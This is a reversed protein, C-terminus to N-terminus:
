YQNEAHENQLVGLQQQKPEFDVIKFEPAIDGDNIQDINNIKQQVALCADEEITGAAFVIKQLSKSKGGARHVRGLAQKLDVARYTPCILAVRPHKGNLDHLSIGVGGAQINCIIVREEDKQFADIFGQRDEEKQGGVVLCETKLKEALAKVSDTFNLFIAVSKGEDVADKTMEALLPIKVLEVRQRARLQIVLHSAPDKAEKMSLKHLEEQMEAYIKNIESTEDGMDYIDAMIMTDPFADGLDKIRVRNGRRPFIEKNLAILHKKGGSFEMGMGGKRVGFRYAWQYFSSGGEHLGLLLGLGYLQLPNHAATASIALAPIEQIKCGIPLKSNQSTKNACRHIEDFIVISNEPLTWQFKEKVEDIFKGAGTKGNKVAEYNIVGIPKVGLYALAKKWSSIVAKPCVVFPRRGMHRAIACATYTKGTGTDSADLAANYTMISSVLRKVPQIQFPFLLSEDISFNPEVYSADFGDDVPTEDEEEDPGIKKWWCIEWDSTYKSKTVSFGLKKIDEKKARWLNWFDKDPDAKRLLRRGYKTNVYAGPSWGLGALIEYLDMNGKPLITLPWLYNASSGM